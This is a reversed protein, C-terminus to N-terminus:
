GGGCLVGGNMRDALLEMAAKCVDEHHLPAGIWTEAAQRSMKVFRDPSGLLDDIRQVASAMDDPDVIIGNVGDAVYRAIEGVATVIPVLGLQMAEVVAMGMGEYRSLQLFFGYGQSIKSLEDNAVPGGFRIRDSVGLRAALQVLGESAGHDSGYIMFSAAIESDGLAAILALSRDLGKQPHLRGWTVFQPRAAKKESGTRRSTVFSIVRTGRRAEGIRKELTIVSDAWVQDATVFALRHALGDVFHETQTNHLFIVLQTSRSVLKIAIGVLVSRWLSCILVAPRLKQLDKITRWYNRIGPGREPHDIIRETRDALTAGCMFYLRFNCTLENAEAVSRAATEVGGAMDRPVLQM